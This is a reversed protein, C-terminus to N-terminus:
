RSRFQKAHEKAQEVTRIRNRQWELLIRDIYRFHLKGAFVAEKLAHLILELPYRDDDLWGSIMECEMPSLPRAFETEFIKFLDKGGESAQAPKVGPSPPTGAVGASNGTRTSGPAPEPKAGPEGEEVAAALRMLLPNLNYKEYQVGTIDDTSEDITIWQEKLLRQVSAIVTEAPASMRAQLEDLTPFDKQEKERFALLHILLMAEADTLGMAAYRGLLLMPVSVSGDLLAALYGSSFAQRGQDAM